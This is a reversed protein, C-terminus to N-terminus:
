DLPPMSNLWQGLHQFLVNHIITRQSQGFAARVNCEVLHGNSGQDTYNWNNYRPSDCYRIKVVNDDHGFYHVIVINIYYRYIFKFLAILWIQRWSMRTYPFPSLTQIVTCFCLFYGVTMWWKRCVLLNRDKKIFHLFRECQHALKEAPIKKWTRTSYRAKTNKHPM